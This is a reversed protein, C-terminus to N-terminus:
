TGRARAIRSCGEVMGQWLRSADAQHRGERRRPGPWETSTVMQVSAQGSWRHRPM